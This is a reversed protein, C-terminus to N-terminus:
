EVDECIPPRPSKWKGLELEYSSKRCTIEAGILTYENESPILGPAWLNTCALTVEAPTSDVDSNIITVETNCVEDTDNYNTGGSEGWFRHPGVLFSDYCMAETKFAYEVTPNFPLNNCVESNGKLADWWAHVSTIGWAGVCVLSPAVLFGLEM